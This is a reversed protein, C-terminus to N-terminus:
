RLLLLLKSVDIRLLPEPPINVLGAVSLVVMSSSEKYRDTGEPEEEDADTDTVRCFIEDRNGKGNGESGDVANFVENSVAICKSVFSFSSVECVISDNKAVSRGEEEEEAEVAVEDEEEEEEM